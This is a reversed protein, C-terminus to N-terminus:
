RGTIQHFIWGQSSVLFNRGHCNRGLDLGKSLLECIGSRPEFNYSVCHSSTSCAILCQMWDGTNRREDVPGILYMDRKTIHSEVRLVQFAYATLLYISSLM